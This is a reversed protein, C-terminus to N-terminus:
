VDKAYGLLVRAAEEINPREPIVADEEHSRELEVIRLYNELTEIANSLKESEFVATLLRAAGQSQIDAYRLGIAYSKFNISKMGHLNYEVTDNQWDSILGKPINNDIDHRIDDFNFFYESNFCAVGGVEDGVWFEFDVEHKKAFGHIYSNAVKEFEKKRAM